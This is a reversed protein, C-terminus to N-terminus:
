ITIKGALAVPQDIVGLPVPCSQSNASRNGFPRGIEQHVGTHVFRLLHPPRSTAGVQQKLDTASDIIASEARGKSLFEPWGVIWAWRPRYGSSGLVQPLGTSLGIGAGSCCAHPLGVIGEHTERAAQQFVWAPLFREAAHYIPRVDM